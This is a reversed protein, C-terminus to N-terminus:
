KKIQIKREGGGKEEGVTGSPKLKMGGEGGGVWSIASM